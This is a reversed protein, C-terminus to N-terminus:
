IYENELLIFIGKKIKLIHHFKKRNLEKGEGSREVERKKKRSM